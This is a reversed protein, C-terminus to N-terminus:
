EVYVYVSHLLCCSNENGLRNLAKLCFTLQGVICNEIWRTSSPNYSACGGASSLVSTICMSSNGAWKWGTPQDDSVPAQLETLATHYTLSLPCFCTVNCNHHKYVPTVLVSILTSFFVLFLKISWPRTEPKYEKRLSEAMQMYKLQCRSMM